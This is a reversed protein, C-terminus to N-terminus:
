AAVSNIEARSTCVVNQEILMGHERLLEKMKEVSTMVESRTGAIRATARGNDEKLVFIWVPSRMKGEAYVRGTIRKRDVFAGGGKDNTEYFGVVFKSGANKAIFEEASKYAGIKDQLNWM